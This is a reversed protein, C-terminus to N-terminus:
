RCFVDKEFFWIGNLTIGVEYHNTPHITIQVYRQSTLNNHIM